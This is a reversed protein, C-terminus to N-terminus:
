FCYLQRITDKVAHKVERIKRCYLIPNLSSNLYILTSGAFGAVDNETFLVVVIGFPVYCSVLALQVWMISSVTKKYRAINLPIREENQQIHPVNNQVLSQQHRLKLHIRTYCFISTVLCLISAVSAEKYAVDRRWVWVCGSSAAILWFCLTVVRVRRLTVVHRYRLALLLALLREVSIATSTLVSIGCLTMSSSGLSKFAYYMVNVNMKMTSSMIFTTFLPQVFLGVCFDTVALCRFFLKTPPHISSVNKLSVIILANGVAATISLFINLASFFEVIGAPPASLAQNLKSTYNGEGTFNEM